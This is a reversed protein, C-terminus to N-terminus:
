EFSKSCSGGANGSAMLRELIEAATPSRNKKAIDLATNGSNDKISPDIGRQILEPIIVPHLYHYKPKVIEHLMTRGITDKLNINGSQELKEIKSRINNVTRNTLVSTWYHAYSGFISQLPSLPMQAKEKKHQTGTLQELREVVPSQSLRAVNLATLGRNDKISPDIGGQILKPIIFHHLREHKLKVLEHLMTRGLDDKATITGAQEFLSIIKQVTINSSSRSIFFSAWESPVGGYKILISRVTSDHARDILSYGKNDRINVDAGNELLAELTIISINQPQRVVMVQLATLGKNKINVDTIMKTDLMFDLIDKFDSRRIRDVVDWWLAVGDVNRTNLVLTRFLDRNNDSVAVIISEKTREQITSVLSVIKDIKNTSDSTIHRSKSLQDEYIMNFIKLITEIDANRKTVDTNTLATRIALIFSYGHLPYIGFSMLVSLANLDMKEVAVDISTYGRNTKQKPDADADILLLIADLNKHRIAISLPKESYEAVNNPDASANLLLSMIKIDNNKTAVNLAESMTDVNVRNTSLLSSVTQADNNQVARYLVSTYGSKANPDAGVALLALIIEQNVTEKDVATYLANDLSSQEPRKNKSLYRLVENPDNIEITDQLTIIQPKEPISSAPQQKVEVSSYPQAPEGMEKPLRGRENKIDEEAGTELLAEILKQDGIYYAWHLPTNGISDEVFIDVRGSQIASIVQPINNKNKIATILDAASVFFSYFIIITLIFFKVACRRILNHINCPTIIFICM